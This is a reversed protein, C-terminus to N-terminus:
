VMIKVKELFLDLSKNEVVLVCWLIFKLLRYLDFVLIKDLFVFVNWFYCRELFYLLRGM